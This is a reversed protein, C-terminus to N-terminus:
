IAKELATFCSLITQKPEMKLQQEDRILELIKEQVTLWKELYLPSFLTFLDRERDNLPNSFEQTAIKETVRHSYWTFLYYFLHHVMEGEKMLTESLRFCLPYPPTRRRLVEGIGEMIQDLLKLGNHAVLNQFTGLRGKSLLCLLDKENSTLALSQSEIFSNMDATSITHLKVEQCRSRVTPSLNSGMHSILFFLTKPSPEELNKLLANQAKENMDDISDVVIIKWGNRESTQQLMQNAHRVADITIFNKSQSLTDEGKEILLFDPHTGHHTQHWVTDESETLPITKPYSGEPHRLLFRAVFKASSAKGIGQPGTLLWAHHLTNSQLGKLFNQHFIEHGYFHHHWTNDLPAESSSPPLLDKFMM